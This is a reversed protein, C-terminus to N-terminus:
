EFAGLFREKYKALDSADLHGATLFIQVGKACIIESFAKYKVLLFLTDNQLKVVTPKYRCYNFIV